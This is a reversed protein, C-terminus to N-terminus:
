PEPKREKWYDPERAGHAIAAIWFSEALELFYLRYPFREMRQQRYDTRAYRRCLEPHRRLRAAAIEFEALLDLGLGACREEYWAMADALERRAASHVKVPKM